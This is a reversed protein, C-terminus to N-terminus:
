HFNSSFNLLGLFLVWGIPSGPPSAAAWRAGPPPGRGKQVGLPLARSPGLLMNYLARSENACPGKLARPGKATCAVDIKSLIIFYLVVVDLVEELFFLIVVMALVSEGAVSMERLWAMFFM